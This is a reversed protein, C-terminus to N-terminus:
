KRKITMYWYNDGVTTYCSYATSNECDVKRRFNNFADQNEFVFLLENFEYKEDPYFSTMKTRVEVKFGDFAYLQLGPIKKRSHDSQYSFGLGTLVAILNKYSQGLEMNRFFDPSNAGSTDPSSDESTAASEGSGASEKGNCDVYGNKNCDQGEFCVESVEIKYQDSNNDAIMAKAAGWDNSYSEGPQVMYTLTGYKPIENGVILTYRFQVPKTYNNKVRVGWSYFKGDKNYGYNKVTFGLNKFCDNQFSTSEYNITKNAPPTAKRNAKYSGTALGHTDKKIETKKQATIITAMFTLVTLLVIKKM